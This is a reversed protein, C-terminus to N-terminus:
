PKCAFRKCKITDTEYQTDEKIREFDDNCSCQFECFPVSQKIQELFRFVADVEKEDLTSIFKCINENSQKHLYRHEEIIALGKDTLSFYKEKKNDKRNITEILEKQKLKDVMQTIAGKTIGLRESLGSVNEDPYRAITDLVQMEGHYLLIGNGYDRPKKREEELLRTIGFIQETVKCYMM